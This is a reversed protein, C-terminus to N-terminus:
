AGAGAARVRPRMVRKVVGSRRLTALSVWVPGHAGLHEVGFSDVAVGVHDRASGVGRMLVLDGAMVRRGTPVDTAIAEPAALVAPWDAPLVVGLIERVRRVAYAWCAGEGTM